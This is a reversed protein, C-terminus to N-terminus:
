TLNAIWQDLSNSISHKVRYKLLGIERRFDEKSNLILPNIKRFILDNRAKWIVWCMLIIIEMFFSVSLQNRFSQLVQFAELDNPVQVNIWAWCQTAFPCQLLLHMLTEEMRSNCLVCSYDELNMNKRRLLERTSIRDKLVLWFFV